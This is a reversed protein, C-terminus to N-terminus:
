KSIKVQRNSPLAEQEQLKQARIADLEARISEGITPNVKIINKGKMVDLKKEGNEEKEYILGEKQLDSVKVEKTGGKV